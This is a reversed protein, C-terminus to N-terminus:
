GREEFTQGTPPFGEREKGRELTMSSSTMELVYSSTMYSTKAEGLAWALTAIKSEALSFKFRGQIL